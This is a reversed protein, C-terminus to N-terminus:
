IVESMDGPKKLSFAAAEFNPDLEGRNTFGLEGGAEQSGPDESYIKALKSFDEGKLIRQRLEELKQKALLKIEPSVSPRIVIQGVEVTANYYPLSDKPISNFYDRVDNPTVKIDAIIQQQERQALIQQNINERFEEKIAIVSKGYYAELKDQGGALNSFYRIRKDLESEIEDESVEVSDLLAQAVLLKQTLLQELLDCRLDDSEKAGQQIYQQYQSEVDSFLIIKNDVIAVIKDATIGPQAISLKTILILITVLLKNKM